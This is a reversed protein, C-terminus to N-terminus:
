GAITVTGLLALAEIVGGAISAPREGLGFCAARDGRADAAVLEIQAGPGWIPNAYGPGGRGTEGHCAACNEAYAAQGARFQESPSAAIVPAALLLAGLAPVVHRLM